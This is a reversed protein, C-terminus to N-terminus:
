LELLREKPGDRGAYSIRAYSSGDTETVFSVTGAVGEPCKERLVRLEDKTWDLISEAMQNTNFFGGCHPWSLLGDLAWWRIGHDPCQALFFFVPTLSIGLSILPRDQILALTMELMRQLRKYDEMLPHLSCGNSRLLCSKIGVIQGHATVRLVQVGRQEKASLRTFSAAVFAELAQLFQNLCSIIRLPGLPSDESPEDEGDGPITAQQQSQKWFRVFYGCSANFAPGFAQHAEGFTSFASLYNEYPREYLIEQDIPLIPPGKNLLSFSQSQLHLYTELTSQQEWPSHVSRQAKHERLIKLGGSLHVSATAPRAYLLEALTFLLCCVLVVQRLAPDQSARRKTLLSYSRLSQETAFRSLATDPRQGSVPIPLGHQELDQHISGLAVVAHYVAPENYSMQLVLKEWLPNDFSAILHSISRLQFYSFCRKEDSTTVFCFGTAVASSRCPVMTTKKRSPLPLRQAEYGDCVRGTSTCQQCAGPTEDCKVRRARCTRCGTRSRPKSARKQKVPLLVKPPHADAEKHPLDM